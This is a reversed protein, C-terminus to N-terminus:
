NPRSWTPVEKSRRSSREWLPQGLAENRVAVFNMGRCAARLRGSLNEDLQLAATVTKDFMRETEDRDAGACTLADLLLNRSERFRCPVEKPRRGILV